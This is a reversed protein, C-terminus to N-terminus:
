RRLLKNGAYKLTDRFIILTVLLVFVGFGETKLTFGLGSLTFQSIKLVELAHIILDRM